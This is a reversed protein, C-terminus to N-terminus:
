EEFVIEAVCNLSTPSNVMLSLIGAATTGNFIIPEDGYSFKEQYGSQPHVERTALIAQIDGECSDNMTLVTCRKSVAPGIRRTATHATMNSGFSSNTLCLRVTVPSATVSIGDFFCGWEKIKVASNTSSIIRILTKECSSALAVEATTCASFIVGAM